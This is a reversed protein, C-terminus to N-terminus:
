LIPYARFEVEVKGKNSLAVNQLKDLKVLVTVPSAPQDCSLTMTAPPDSTGAESKGTFIFDHEYVDAMLQVVRQTGKVVKITTILRQVSVWGWKKHLQFWSVPSPHTVASGDAHGTITVELKGEFVGQSEIVRARSMYIEFECTDPVEPCNCVAPPPPPNEPKSCNCCVVVSCGCKQEPVEPDHRDSRSDNNERVSSDNVM